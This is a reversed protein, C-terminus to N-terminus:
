RSPRSLRPSSPRSLRRPRIIIGFDALQKGFRAQESENLNTIREAKKELLPRLLQREKDTAVGYVAAAQKLQLRSFDEELRTRGSAETITKEQGATLEDAIKSLDETVDEGRRSAARLEGRKRGLELEQPSRFERVRGSSIMRRALKEAETVPPEASGKYTQVGVGLLVPLAEVIGKVYGDEKVADRFDQSPLPELLKQAETKADFKEGTLVNGGAMFDVATGVPPNAKSRLFGTAIDGMPAGAYTEDGTMQAKAAGAMRIMFRFPQQLGTLTDYRTNGIKAKLFDSSEPDLDVQALGSAKLLGLTLMTAGMFRMNDAMMLARSGKPATAWAVPNLMKNLLQFRSAALRPSFLAINGAAVYKQASSPVNGRGTAINVLKAQHRLAKQFERSPLNLSRLYDLQHAGIRLRQSDLFGVFTRESIDKVGKVLRLPNLRGRAALDLMSGGLYLEERRALRPDSKDVGTFEVGAQKLLEFDPHAKITAEVNRWGADSMSHLMDKAAGTSLIPHTAVGFGGQRLLASFDGMSLLTKPVSAMGVAINGLKGTTTLNALYMDREFKAKLQEVRKSLQATERTYTVPVRQKKAYTGGALQEYQKLLQTQRRKNSPDALGYALVTDRIDDKTLTPIHQQVAAYVDDVLQTASTVGAKARNRAMRAILVTLKGEPDLSALGSPQAKRAETLATSLQTKLQDWESDLIARSEGRKRTRAVRNVERQLQADTVKALAADRQAEVTAIEQAMQEYRTRETPTLERGKAAKARSLLSILDYNENITVQQSRLARGKETGSLRWAREVTDFEQEIQNLEGRKAEIDAPKTTNAIETLLAEHRNKLSAKHLDLQVTETDTLARNNAIVDEAIRRPQDPAVTNADKAEQLLTTDPKVPAAPLPDAGRAAREIDVHAKAARTPTPQAEADPQAVSEREMTVSPPQTERTIGGGTAQVPTPAVPPSVVDTTVDQEGGKPEVVPEVTRPTVQSAEFTREVGNPFRVRVRGARTNVVTAERGDAIVLGALPAPKPQEVQAAGGLEAWVHQLHEDADAGFEARLKQSWARFTPRVKQDYLEWGRVIMQDILEYPDAGAHRYEIGEAKDAARKAQRTRASTVVAPEPPATVPLAEYETRLREIQQRKGRTNAPAVDGWKLGQSEVYARFTAPRTATERPVSAAPEVVAPSEVAPAPEAVPAAPRELPATYPAAELGVQVRMENVTDFLGKHFDTLAAISADYESLGKSSHQTFLEELEARDTSDVQKGLQKLCNILM